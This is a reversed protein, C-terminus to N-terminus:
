AVLRSKNSQVPGICHWQAGLHHLAEIKVVAEQIYNEGLCQQGAEVAQAIAAADFTKSVALLTVSDVPRGAAICAAAVRARVAQLNDAITTM